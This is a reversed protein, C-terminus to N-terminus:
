NRGTSEQVAKLDKMEFIASLIIKEEALEFVKKMERSPM